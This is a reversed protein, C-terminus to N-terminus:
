QLVGLKKAIDLLWAKESLDLDIDRGMLSFLFGMDRPNLRYARPIYREVLNRWGLETKAAQPAPRPLPTLIKSLLDHSTCSAERLTRDSARATAVVGGEFNSALCPLLKCVMPVAKSLSDTETISM